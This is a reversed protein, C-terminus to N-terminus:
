VYYHIIFSIFGLIVDITLPIWSYSKKYYAYIFTLLYLCSHIPRLNNWWIPKQNTEIGKMRRNYSILFGISIILFIWSLYPLYTEPFFRVLLILLIRVPICAVLFLLKSNM